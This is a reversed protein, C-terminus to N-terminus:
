SNKEIRKNKTRDIINQNDTTIEYPLFYFNLQDKEQVFTKVMYDVLDFTLEDIKLNYEEDDNYINISALDDNINLAGFDCWKHTTNIILHVIGSEYKSLFYSDVVGNDIKKNAIIM